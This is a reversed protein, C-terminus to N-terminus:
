LEDLTRIDGHLEIGAFREELVARAAPDIESLLITEFGATHLGLEIGGIGAFLGVSTARSSDLATPVSSRTNRARRSSHSRTNQISSVTGGGAERARRVTSRASPVRAAQDRRAARPRDRAHLAADLRPAQARTARPSPAPERRRAPAGLRLGAAAHATDGAQTRERGGR